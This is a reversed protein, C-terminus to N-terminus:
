ATAVTSASLAQFRGTFGRSYRERYITGLNCKFPSRPGEPIAM